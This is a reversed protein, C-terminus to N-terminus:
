IKTNIKLSYRSLVVQKKCCIMEGLRCVLIWLAQLPM